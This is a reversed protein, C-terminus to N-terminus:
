IVGLIKPISINSDKKIFKLYACISFVYITRVGIIFLEPIRKPHQIHRYISALGIKKIFTPTLKEKGAFVDIMGGCPIIICNQLKDKLKLALEQKHPTPMGILIVNPKTVIIDNIVKKEDNKSFFGNHGCISSLNSYKERLNIIAKTKSLETAGLLYVNLGLKNAIELVRITLRPISIDYLLRFKFLKIILFFLRGDTVLLDFKSTINYYQKHKKIYSLVALSYGYFIFSKKQNFCEVIYNDLEDSSFSSVKLGFFNISNM